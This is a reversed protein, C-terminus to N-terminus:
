AAGERVIGAKRGRELGDRASEMFSEATDADLMSRYRRAQLGMELRDADHVLRAEPTNGALYEEWISTYSDRLPAPLNGLIRDMADRELRRKVAPDVRGPVMDGTIGEAMDHLLAMRVARGADLKDMDAMVMALVATAYSHDAVSEPRELGADVWGQRRVGKLNLAAECFGRM